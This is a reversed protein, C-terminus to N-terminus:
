VTINEKLAEFLKEGIGNVNKIDQITKFAGNKTRYDIIAKAKAEGIKNLTMLEEKSATNINVKSNITKDNSNDKTDVSNTEEKSTTTNSSKSNSNVICADNKPEEECIKSKEEFEKELNPYNKIEDKSYVVIVMADSVELSLNLLSTSAEKTVGGAKNIADIVRSGKEVQYVGPNVVEGKIDVYYYDVIVDEKLNKTEDKTESEYVIKETKYTTKNLFLITVTLFILVLIILALIRKKNELLYFKIKDILKM